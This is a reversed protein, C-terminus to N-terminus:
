YIAIRFACFAAVGLVIYGAAVLIALFSLDCFLAFDFGSAGWYENGPVHWTPCSTGTLSVTFFGTAASVIPSGAVQAQFTSYVSSPTDTSATYLGGTDGDANGVDCV